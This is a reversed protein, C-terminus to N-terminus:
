GAATLFAAATRLTARGDPLTDGWLPWLHCLGPRIEATVPVGVRGLARILLLSDDLLIENTAATIWVPPLGSLDAGLPSADPHYALDPGFALEALARDGEDDNMADTDRTRTTSAGTRDTNPSMLALRRVQGPRRLAALLALQGGASDGGVDVPGPLADLVALVDELPAPWSHEPALRYDPCIVPRDCGMALCATMAAHTAGDGFVLGGGHLWLVPAGDQPGQVTCPVGGIRVRRGAPGAPALAAFGARKDDPSGEVPHAAIHARLADMDTIM